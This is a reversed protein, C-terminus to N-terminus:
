LTFTSISPNDEAAECTHCITGKSEPANAHVRRQLNQRGRLAISPFDHLIMGAGQLVVKVMRREVVVRIRVISPHLLLIRKPMVGDAPMPDHRAIVIHHLNQM